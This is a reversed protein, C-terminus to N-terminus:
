RPTARSLLVLQRKLDVYICKGAPRRTLALEWGERKQADLDDSTSWTLELGQSRLEQIEVDSEIEEPVRVPIAIADSHHPWANQVAIIFSPETGLPM